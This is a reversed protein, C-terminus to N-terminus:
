ISDDYALYGELIAAGQRYEVTETHMGAVANSCSMLLIIVLSFYRKIM